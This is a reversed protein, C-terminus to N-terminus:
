IICLVYVYVYKLSALTAPSDDVCCVRVCLNKEEQSRRKIAEKSRNQECKDLIEIMSRMSPPYTLIDYPFLRQQKQFFFKDQQRCVVLLPSQYVLPDVTMSTILHIWSTDYCSVNVCVLFCSRERCRQLTEATSQAMQVVYGRTVLFSRLSRMIAEPFNFCIVLKMSEDDQTYLLEPRDLVVTQEEYSLM